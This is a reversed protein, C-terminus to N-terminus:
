KRPEKEPSSAHMEELVNRYKKKWWEPAMVRSMFRLFPSDAEPPVPAVTSGQEAKLESLFTAIARLEKEPLESVWAADKPPAGHDLTPAGYTKEPHRLFAYIWDFSRRSGEGDLDSGRGGVNTGNRLARHCETCGHRRFLLEGEHGLPSLEAHTKIAFLPKESRSAVIQIAVFGLVAFAVFAGAVGFLVKEGTKLSQKKRDM